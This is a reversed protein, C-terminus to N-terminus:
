SSSNEFPWNTDSEPIESVAEDEDVQAFAEAPEEQRIVQEIPPQSQIEIRDSVEKEPEPMSVTKEDSTEFSNTTVAPKPSSM